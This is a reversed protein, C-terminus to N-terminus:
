EVRSGISDAPMGFQIEVSPGPSHRSRYRHASRGGIPQESSAFCCVCNDPRNALRLRLYPAQRLHHERFKDASDTVPIFVGYAGGVQQRMYKAACNPTRVPAAALGDKEINRFRDIEFRQTFQENYEIEGAIPDLQPRMPIQPRQTNAIQELPM